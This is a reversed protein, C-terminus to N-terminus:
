AVYHAFFIDNLREAPLNLFRGIKEVEALTFAGGGSSIRRYLTSKVMGAAEAVDEIQCGREIIAAKLKKTDVM